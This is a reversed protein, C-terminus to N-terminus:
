PPYRLICPKVEKCFSAALRKANPPRSASCALVAIQAKLRPPRLRGHLFATTKRPEGDFSCSSLVPIASAKAHRPWGVLVVAASGSRLEEIGKGLAIPGFLGNRSPPGPLNRLGRRATFSDRAYINAISSGIIMRTTNAMMFSAISLSEYGLAEPYWLTSYGLEEITRLLHRIGAGDLRDVPYWVSGVAEDRSSGSHAAQVRPM